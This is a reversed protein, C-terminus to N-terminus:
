LQVPLIQEGGLSIKCSTEPFDPNLSSDYRIGINALVGLTTDDSGYNGARFAVPKPVGLREFINCAVQLLTAQDARSFDSINRGARGNVPSDAKDSLWEPHLHLQVEHGRFLIPDVIRRIIEDGLVLSPIPDVFFVGKLGFAELQDM